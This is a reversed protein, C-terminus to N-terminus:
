PVGGTCLTGVRPYGQVYPVWGLTDWYYTCGGLWHVTGVMGTVTGPLVTMVPVDDLM